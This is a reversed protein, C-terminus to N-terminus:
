LKMHLFAVGFMGLVEVMSSNQKCVSMIVQRQLGRTFLRGEAVALYKLNKSMLGCCWSGSKQAASNVNEMDSICIEPQM